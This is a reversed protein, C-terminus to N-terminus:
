PRAEKAAGAAERMEERLMRRARALRTEITTVPVGQLDAIQKYSMGRVCRLLLVERYDASLREAARMLRRGEERAAIPTDGTSTEAAGEPGRSRAESIADRVLRLRPVSRRGATRAVNAAVARLWPKMMAPDRVQGITKVVRIAVEQLLDELDAAGPSRPMNALVVAAVWRRHTEWLAAAAHPDGAVAREAQTLQAQPQDLVQRRRQHRVRPVRSGTRRARSNNPNRARGNWRRRPRRDGVLCRGFM